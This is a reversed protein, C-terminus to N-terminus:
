PDAVSGFVFVCAKVILIQSVIRMIKGEAFIACNTEFCLFGKPISDAFSRLFLDASM